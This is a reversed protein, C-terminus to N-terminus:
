QSSWGKCAISYVLMCGVAFGGIDSSADNLTPRSLCMLQLLGVDVASTVPMKQHFYSIKQGCSRQSHKEDGLSHEVTGFGFENSAGHLSSCSQGKFNKSPVLIRQSVTTKEIFFLSTPRQGGDDLCSAVQAAVRKMVWQQLQYESISVRNKKQQYWPFKLSRADGRM